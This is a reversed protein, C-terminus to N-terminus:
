KSLFVTVDVYDPCLKNESRTTFSQHYVYKRSATPTFIETEAGGGSTWIGRTANCVVAASWCCIDIM